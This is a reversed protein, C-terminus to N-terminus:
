IKAIQAFVTHFGPFLRGTNMMTQGLAYLEDREIIQGRGHGIVTPFYRAEDGLCFCALVLSNHEPARKM